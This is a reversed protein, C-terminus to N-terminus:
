GNRRDLAKLADFFASDTAKRLAGVFRPDDIHQRLIAVNPRYSRLGQLAGFAVGHFVERPSKGDHTQLYPAYVENYLGKARELHEPKIGDIRDIELKHAFDNRIQRVCDACRPILPPIFRFARLLEIKLSFGFDKNDRLAKFGPILITLFADYQNELVIATLIVYSRDDGSQEIRRYFEPMEENSRHFEDWSLFPKSFASEGDKGEFWRFDKPDAM